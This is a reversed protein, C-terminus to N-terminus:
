LRSQKEFDPYSEQSRRAKKQSTKKENDEEMTKFKHWFWLFVALLIIWILAIM